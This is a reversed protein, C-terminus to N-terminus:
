HNNHARCIPTRDKVWMTQTRKFRKFESVGTWSRELLAARQSESLGHAVGGPLDDEEIPFPFFLQQHPDFHAAAGHQTAQRAQLNGLQAQPRFSPQLPAAPEAPLEELDFEGDDLLDGLTFGIGAEQPKFIETLSNMQIAPEITAQPVDGDADSISDEGDQMNADEAEEAGAEDIAILEERKSVNVTDPEKDNLAEESSSDSAPAPMPEEPVTVREPVRGLMSTLLDMQAKREAMGTDPNEVVQDEEEDGEADLTHPSVDARAALRKAKPSADGAFEADDSASENGAKELEEDGSGSSESGQEAGEADETLDPKAMIREATPMDGERMHKAKWKTPDIKVRHARSPPEATAAAEAAARAKKEKKKEKALAKKDDKNM